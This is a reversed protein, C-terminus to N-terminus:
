DLRKALGSPDITVHSVHGDTDSFTLTVAGSACTGAQFMPRVDTTLNVVPCVSLGGTNGRVFLIRTGQLPVPNGADVQVSSPLTVEQTEFVCAKVGPNAEYFDYKIPSGPLSNDATWAVGAFVYQGPPGGACGVTGDGTGITNVGATSQNHADAVTAVIKDVAADFQTRSRLSRQGVFAIMVMSSTIAMVLILEILSFGAQHSTRDVSNTAM